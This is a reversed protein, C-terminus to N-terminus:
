SNENDAKGCGEEKNVLIWEYQRLTAFGATTTTTDATIRTTSNAQWLNPVCRTLETNEGMIARQSIVVGITAAYLM